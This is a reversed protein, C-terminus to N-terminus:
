SVAVTGCACDGAFGWVWTVGGELVLGVLCAGKAPWGGEATELTEGRSRRSASVAVDRGEREGGAGGGEIVGPSVGTGAFASV